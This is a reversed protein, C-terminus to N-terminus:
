DLQTTHLHLNEVVAVLELVHFLGLVHPGVLRHALRKFDLGVLLRRGIRRGHGVGGNRPVVQRRRRNADADRLARNHDVGHIQVVVGRHGKAPRAARQTHRRGIIGHIQVLVRHFHRHLHGLHRQNGVRVANRAGKGEVAAAQRAARHLVRHRHARQLLLLAVLLRRPPGLGVLEHVVVAPVVFLALVHARAHLVVDHVRGQHLNDVALVLAADDRALGRVASVVRWVKRHADVALVTHDVVARPGVKLPRQLLIAENGLVKLCEVLADKLRALPHHAHGAEEFHVHAQRQALVHRRLQRARVRSKSDRIPALQVGRFHHAGVTRRQQRIRELPQLRLHLAIQDDVVLQRPHNQGFVLPIRVLECDRRGAHREDRGKVARRQERRM